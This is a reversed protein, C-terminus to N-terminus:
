FHTPFGNDTIQQKRIEDELEMMNIFCDRLHSHMKGLEFGYVVDDKESNCLQQITEANLEFMRKYHEINELQDQTIYYNGNKM